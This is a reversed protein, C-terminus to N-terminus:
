PTRFLIYFRINHTKVSSLLKVINKAAPNLLNKCEEIGANGSNQCARADEAEELIKKCEDSLL